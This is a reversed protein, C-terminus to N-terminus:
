GKQWLLSLGQKGLRAQPMAARVRLERQDLADDTDDPALHTIILQRAGTAKAVQVADQWTSHGWGARSRTDDHGEMLLVDAPCPERCLRLLDAREREDSAQWELDTAFVLSAGTAREDLRYAYCGGAHHVACWRVDFSGHRFPTECLEPLVLFRRRAAFPAPWFPAETLRRVATEATLGNHPPAAVVLHWGPDYLPAFPPLGILHDLHYHSFLMLVPREAEAAGLLPQLTRLGTGADFLVREGAGNDALVCTTAGGFRMFAPHALPTSGRVGGLVIRMPTETTKM